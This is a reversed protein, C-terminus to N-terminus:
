TMRSNRAAQHRLKARCPMSRGVPLPRYIKTDCQCCIWLRKDDTALLFAHMLGGILLEPTGDVFVNAPAGDRLVLPRRRRCPPPPRRELKQAYPPRVRPSGSPAQRASPPAIQRLESAPCVDSGQGSSKGRM